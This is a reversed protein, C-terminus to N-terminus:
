NSSFRVVVTVQGSGAQSLPQSVEAALNEAITSVVHEALSRNVTIQAASEADLFELTGGSQRAIEALAERAAADLIGGAVLEATDTLGYTSAAFGRASPATDSPLNQGFMMPAPESAAGPVSKFEAVPAPGLEPQQQLRPLFNGVGVAIAIVAAAALGMYAMPFRPLSLARKRSRPRAEVASMCEQMFTRRLQERFAPDAEHHYKLAREVPCGEAAENGILEDARM